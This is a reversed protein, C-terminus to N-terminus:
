LTMITHGGVKDVVKLGKKLLYKEVWPNVVDMKLVYDDPFDRFQSLGMDVLASGIGKGSMSKDVIVDFSYEGGSTGTYLAGVVKGNYVALTNLEKDSLISIGSDKQIRDLDVSYDNEMEDPSLFQVNPDVVEFLDKLKIM